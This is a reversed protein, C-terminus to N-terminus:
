PQCRTQNLLLSTTGNGQFDHPEHLVAALEVVTVKGCSSSSEYALALETHMASATQKGQEAIGCALRKLKM